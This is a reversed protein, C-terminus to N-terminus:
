ARDSGGGGSNASQGRVRGGAADALSGRAEVRKEANTRLGRTLWRDSIRCVPIKM